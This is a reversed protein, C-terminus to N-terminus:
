IPLLKLKIVINLMVNRKNELLKLLISYIYEDQTYIVVRWICKTIDPDLEFLLDVNTYKFLLDYNINRSKLFAGVSFLTSNEINIKNKSISWDNSATKREVSPVYNVLDNIYKKLQIGIDKELDRYLEKSEISLIISKDCINFLQIVNYPRKSNNYVRPLSQWINENENILSLGSWDGGPPNCMGEFSVASFEYKFLIHIISDVDNESLHLPVNSINLLIDNDKKDLCKKKNDNNDIYKFYKETSFVITSDVIIYNSLSIISRWLGNHDHLYELDNTAFKNKYLPLIPGYVYTLIEKDEGVLMAIFPIIGRDPRNDDGRPKFGKIMCIILDKSFDIKDLDVTYIDKLENFFEKKKGKPIVGFPLDVSGIGISYKNVINQIKKINESTSKNAIKKKFKFKNNKIAYKVIDDDNNFLNRWDKQTFSRQANANKSLNLIMKYNKKLLENKFETTELGLLLSLIYNGTEKEGFIESSFDKLKFDFDPQYEEGKFYVQAVLNNNKNGFNLYSFSITPNPFRLAKRRRKSDLEYKVFEIIYLYPIGARAVSYARGSRQWAQNGAQLASCFEIAIYIKEFGDLNETIIVDPTEALFSGRSSIIDFINKNWRDSTNKNFGPLLEFNLEYNNGRYTAIVNYNLCAISSLSYKISSIKLTNVILQFMRECEIINDGYIRFNKLMNGGLDM